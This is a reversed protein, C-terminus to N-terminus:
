TQPAGSLVAREKKDAEPRRRVRTPVCVSQREAFGASLGTVCLQEEVRLNSPQWFSQHYIKTKKLFFFFKHYREGINVAQSARMVNRENDDRRDFGHYSAGRPGCDVCSITSEVDRGSVHKPKAWQSERTESSLHTKCRFLEFEIAIFLMQCTEILKCDDHVTM